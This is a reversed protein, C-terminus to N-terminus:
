VGFPNQHHKYNWITTTKKLLTEGLSENLLQVIANTDEIKALRITM